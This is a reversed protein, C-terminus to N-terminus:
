NLHQMLLLNNMFYVLTIERRLGISFNFKMMAKLEAEKQVAENHLEKITQNKNNM